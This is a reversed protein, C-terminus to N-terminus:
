IKRGYLTFKGSAINGALWFFKIYNVATTVLTSGGLLSHFHAVASDGINAVSRGLFHTRTDTASPAFMEIFGAISEGTRNGVTENAHLRFPTVNTESRFTNTGDDRYLKVANDTNIASSGNDTSIILSFNQNVNTTHVNSWVVKYDQYTSTIYTSNFIVSGDDNATTHLLKTWEGGGADEFAPPSGAGTSTLVQGDNGTAVAVPNGSADYSILNGDTGDTLKPLSIISDTIDSSTLPVSTPTKGIYSM